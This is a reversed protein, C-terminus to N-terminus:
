HYTLNNNKGKLETSEFELSIVEIVETKNVGCEEATIKILKSSSFEPYSLCLEKWIELIRKKISM